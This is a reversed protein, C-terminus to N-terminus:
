ISTAELVPTVSEPVCTQEKLWDIVKCSISSDITLTKHKKASPALVLYVFM